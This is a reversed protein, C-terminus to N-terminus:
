DNNGWGLENELMALRKPTLMQKLLEIRTKLANIVSDADSAINAASVQSCMRCEMKDSWATELDYIKDSYTQKTM